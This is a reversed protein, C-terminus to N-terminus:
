EADRLMTYIIILARVAACPIGGVADSGGAPCVVTELDGIVARRVDSKM